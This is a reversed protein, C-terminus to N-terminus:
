VRVRSRPHVVRIHIVTLSDIAAFSSVLSTGGFIRGLAYIITPPRYFQLTTYIRPGFRERRAGRAYRNSEEGAM